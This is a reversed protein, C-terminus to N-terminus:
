GANRMAEQSDEVIEVPVNVTVTTGGGPESDLQMVGGLATVANKAISLGIGAGQHARHLYNESHFFPSTANDLAVEDMGPGTDVVTIELGDNVEVIISVADGPGTFKVANDLVPRIAVSLLEPDTRVLAGPVLLNFAFHVQRAEAVAKYHWCEARLLSELDVPRKEVSKQNAEEALTLLGDVLSCLRRGSERIGAAYEKPKEGLEDGMMVLLDAFGLIGNLPTRMEHSMNGLFKERADIAIQAQRLAARLEDERRLANAAHRICRSVATPKVDDKSLFDFAGVALADLEVALSDYGTLLIFPAKIGSLMCQHIFDIGTSAGLRYDVFVATFTSDALVSMAADTEERCVLEFQQRKLAISLYDRFIEHYDPDDDVLLIRTGSDSM